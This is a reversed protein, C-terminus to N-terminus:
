FNTHSMFIYNDLIFSTKKILDWAETNYNIESLNASDIFTRFGGINTNM